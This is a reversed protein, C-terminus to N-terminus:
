QRSRTGSASSSSLFSAASGYGRTRSSATRAALKKVTGSATSTASIEVPYGDSLESSNTRPSVIFASSGEQFFAIESPRGM